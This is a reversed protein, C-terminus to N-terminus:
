QQNWEDNLSHVTHLRSWEDLGIVASSGVRRIQVLKMMAKNETLYKQQIRKTQTLINECCVCARLALASCLLRLRM